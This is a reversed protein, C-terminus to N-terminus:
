GPLDQRGYRSCEITRGEFSIKELEDFAGGRSHEAIASRVAEPADEIRVERKHFEDAAVASASISIGLTLSQIITTLKM